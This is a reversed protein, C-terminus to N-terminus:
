LCWTKINPPINGNFPKKYKEAMFPGGWKQLYYDSNMKNYENDGYKPAYVHFALVDSLSGFKLGALNLKHMYDNDEFYMPAPFNEDFYGVKEIIKNSLMFFHWLPSDLKHKPLSLNHIINIVEPTDIRIYSIDIGTHMIYSSGDIATRPGPIVKSNNIENEFTNVLNDICDKHLIIDNNSIIMYNLGMELSKKIGDNWCKPVGMRRPHSILTYGQNTAWESTGDESGDDVIIIEIKRRSIISSLLKKTYELRKYCPIILGIKEIKVKM